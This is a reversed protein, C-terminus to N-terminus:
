IDIEGKLFNSTFYWFTSSYTDIELCIMMGKYLDKNLM